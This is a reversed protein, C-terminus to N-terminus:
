KNIRIKAYKRINKYDNLSNVNKSFKIFDESNWAYININQIIRAFEIRSVAAAQVKPAIFLAFRNKDKTEEIDRFLHEEISSIEHEAQFTRSNSITPEINAWIGKDNIVIDSNNGGAHNFPIGEDDFKYNPKVIANKLAKKMVISILFEMRTPKDIQHLIKNESTKKTVTVDVEQILEDWEMQTSWKLLTRQLIDERKSIQEETFVEKEFSLKSDISGMYEMYDLLNKTDNFEKNDSYKKIIYDIKDTELNNLDLFYGNGRLSVVQTLRLKRILEDPSEKLLKEPKYDRKKKEIFDDSAEKFVPENYSDDLLQMCYKYKIEDSVNQIGYRKRFNIIYEVFQVHNNNSWCILFPLEYISLGKGNYKENLLKVSRLFLTLLNMKVKNARWPNNTQYKSFAMLFASFEADESYNEKVRKGNYYYKILLNGVSSVKIKKYPEVLAFGFENILQVQTSFRAAWGYMYGKEGHETLTNGVLYRVKDFDAIESKQYHEFYEDVKNKADLSLDEPKWKKNKKSQTKYTGLTAKTAEAVKFRLIDTEIDLVLKHTLVKGEYPKICSLFSAIREPNRLTTDLSIPKRRIVEM